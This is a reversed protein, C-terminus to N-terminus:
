NRNNNKNLNNYKNINNNNEVTSLMFSKNYYKNEYNQSTTQNSNRKAISSYM